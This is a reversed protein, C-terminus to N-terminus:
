WAADARSVNPIGSDRFRDLTIASLSSRGIAMGPRRARSSTSQHVDISDFGEQGQSNWVAVVVELDNPILAQTESRSALSEQNIGCILSDNQNYSLSYRM